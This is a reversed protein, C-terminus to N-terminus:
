GDIKMTLQERISEMNHLYLRPKIIPEKSQKLSNNRLIKTLKLVKQFNESVKCSTFGTYQLKM